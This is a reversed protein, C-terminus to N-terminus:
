DDDDDEDEYLGHERAYAAVAPSILGETSEGSRVRRRVETSSVGPLTITADVPYGERGILMPPAREVLEDWRYWRAADKLIDSGILLRFRASPHRESLADIVDFTRGKQIQREIDSVEVGRLDAMAMECMRLRHAYDSSRKGFAHAYTPVVLVTDVDSCAKAWAAVLVHAVHPPDFSGGYFAVVKDALVSM